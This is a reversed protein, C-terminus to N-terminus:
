LLKSTVSYRYRGYSSHFLYGSFLIILIGLIIRCCFIDKRAELLNDAFAYSLSTFIKDRIKDKCIKKNKDKYVSYKKGGIFVREKLFYKFENVLKDERFKQCPHAIDAFRGRFTEVFQKDLNAKIFIKIAGVNDKIYAKKEYPSLKEENKVIRKSIDGVVDADAYNCIVDVAKRIAIDFDLQHVDFNINQQLLFESGSVNKFISQSYM